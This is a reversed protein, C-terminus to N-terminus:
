IKCDLGMQFYKHVFKKKTKWYGFSTRSIIWPRSSPKAMAQRYSDFWIRRDLKDDNIM